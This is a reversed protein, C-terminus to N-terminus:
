NYWTINVSRPLLASTSDSSERFVRPSGSDGRRMRSSEAGCRPTALSWTLSESWLRVSIYRRGSSHSQRHGSVQSWGCIQPWVISHLRKLGMPRAQGSLVRFLNTWPSLHALTAVDAPSLFFLLSQRTSERWMLYFSM